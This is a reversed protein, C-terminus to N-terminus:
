TDAGALVTDMAMKLLEAQQALMEANIARTKEMDLSEPDVYYESAKDPDYLKCNSVHMGSHTLLELDHIVQLLPCSSEALKCSKCIEDAWLEIHHKGNTFEPNILDPM